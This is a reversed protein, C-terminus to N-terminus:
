RADLHFRDCLSPIRPDAATLAGEPEGHSVVYEADEDDHDPDKSSKDGVVQEDVHPGDDDEEAQDPPHEPVRPVDVHRWLLQLVVPSQHLQLVTSQALHHPTHGLAEGASEPLREPPVDLGDSLRGRADTWWTVREM